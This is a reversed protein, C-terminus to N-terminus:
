SATEGFLGWPKCAVCTGDGSRPLDVKARSGHLAAMLILERDGVGSKVKTM